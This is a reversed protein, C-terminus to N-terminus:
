PIDEKGTFFINQMLGLKIKTKLKDILWWDSYISDIEIKVCTAACM